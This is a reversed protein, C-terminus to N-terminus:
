KYLDLSLNVELLKGRGPTIQSMPQYVRSTLNQYTVLFGSFCKVDPPPQSGYDTGLFAVSFIKNVKGLTLVCFLLSLLMEGLQLHQAEEGATGGTPNPQPLLAQAHEGKTCTVGRANLM